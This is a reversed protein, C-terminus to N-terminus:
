GLSLLQTKLGRKEMMARILGANKQINPQDNALNPIALLNCFENLIEQGHQARWNKTERASGDGAAFLPGTVLIAILVPFLKMPDLRKDKDCSRRQEKSRRGRNRGAGSISPSSSKSGAMSIWRTRRDRSATAKTPIFWM